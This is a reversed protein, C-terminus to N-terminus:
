LDKPNEPIIKNPNPNFMNITCALAETRAPEIFTSKKKLM